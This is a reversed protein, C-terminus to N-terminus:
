GVSLKGFKYWKPDSTGSILPYVHFVLKASSQKEPGYTISSEESPYAKYFNHDQTVDSDDLVIPHLNLLQAADLDSAGIKAYFTLSKDSGSTALTASPFVYSMKTIDRVEALELTVKIEMGNNRRDIVSNGYQDAKIEGKSTKVEVLVNGLTGGLDISNFTVRQPTLEMKNTTITATANAM